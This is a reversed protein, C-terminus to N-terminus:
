ADAGGKELMRLIGAMGIAKAWEQAALITTEGQTAPRAPKVEVDLTEDTKNTAVKVSAGLLPTDIASRPGEAGDVDIRLVCGPLLDYSWQREPHSEEGIANMSALRQDQTLDLPDM